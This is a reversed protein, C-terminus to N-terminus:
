CQSVVRSDRSKINKSGSIKGFFKIILKDAMGEYEGSRVDALNVREPTSASNEYLYVPIELEKGVKKALQISLEVCEEMTVGSVPVLPCVDTAGMRAHAGKHTQMDLVESAKKIAIFAADVVAEPPGVFTVVTRNTDVGPDVDLLSINNVSEIVDTIEKIKALDVGESFNPVCEIIKM